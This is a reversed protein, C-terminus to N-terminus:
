SYFIGIAKCIEDVDSLAISEDLPLAIVDRCIQEAIPFSEARNFIALGPIPVPYPIFATRAIASLTTRLMQLLSDRQQVRLIFRYHIPNTIANTQPLIVQSIDKLNNRYRDTLRGLYEQKVNYFPLKARLISAHLDDLKMQIGVEPYDIHGERAGYSRIYFAREHLAPDQIVLAGGRGAGTFPKDYSFSFCGFDGVTGAMRWKGSILVSAGFAQATDEILPLRYRQALTLMDEMHMSPQGFLHAFLIAKTKKTIVTEAATPDLAYDRLGVDAFVPVGGVWRVASALVACGYAPVIIEDGEKIDLLKLALVLSDSGSGVSLIPANNLKLGLDKEFETVNKHTKNSFWLSNLASFGVYLNAGRFGLLRCIIDAM